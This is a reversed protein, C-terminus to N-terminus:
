RPGPLLSRLGAGCHELLPRAKVVCGFVDAIVCVVGHMECSSCRFVWVVLLVVDM